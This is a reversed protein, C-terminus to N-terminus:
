PIELGSERSGACVDPLHLMRTCSQDAVADAEATSITGADRIEAGKKVVRVHAACRGDRIPRHHLYVDIAVYTTQEWIIRSERERERGIDIHIHIYIYM